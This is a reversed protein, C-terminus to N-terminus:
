IAAFGGFFINAQKGFLNKQVGRNYGGGPKEGLLPPYLLPPLTLIAIIETFIILGFDV